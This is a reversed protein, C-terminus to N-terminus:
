AVKALAAALRLERETMAKAAIGPIPRASGRPAYFFTEGTAKTYAKEAAALAAANVENQMKLREIWNLVKDVEKQIKTDGEHDSDRLVRALSAQARPLTTDKTYAVANALQYCIGNLVKSQIFAYANRKDEIGTTEDTVTYEEYFFSALDSLAANLKKIDTM